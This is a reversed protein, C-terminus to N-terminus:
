FLRRIGILKTRWYPTDFREVRVAGGAGPAHVFEGPTSPGLAIGVHTPGKATTSFFLLDGKQIDKVEVTRGIQFQDAVTRPVEIRQQDFVYHVFGSCDFGSGPSEGGLRYQTGQLALAMKVISELQRTTATTAPPSSNPASAPVLPVDTVVPPAIAVPKEPTASTTDAATVPLPITPAAPQAEVAPAAEPAMPFPQPRGGSMTACASAIVTSVMLSGLALRDSM